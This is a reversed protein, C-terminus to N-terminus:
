SRIPLMFWFTSGRGPLSNLGIQGHLDEVITKCISLGLGTGQTFDDVKVFRKFVEPQLEPAIGIGTDSISIRVKDDVIRYSLVISGEYTFKCANSILNLIVQKVREEDTHLIVDQHRDPQFIFSVNELPREIIKKSVSVCLEKLNVDSLEYDFTGAEISSFDIMNSFLQLLLHNNKEVIKLYHKREEPNETEAIVSSFGVIANLPTRIEHSMNSIFTTKLQEAEKVRELEQQNRLMEEEVSALLTLADEVSGAQDPKRLYSALDAIMRKMQIHKDM